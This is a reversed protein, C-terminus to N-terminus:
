EDDTQLAVEYSTETDIVNNVLCDDDNNKKNKNKNKNKNKYFHNDYDSDNNNDDKNNNNNNNDDDNNDDDNNDDNNNLNNDLNDSNDSNDSDIFSYDLKEIRKPKLKKVKMQRVINELYIINEKKDFIISKIEFVIQAKGNNKLLEYMERQDVETKKNKYIKTIYDSSEFNLNLNLIDFSLEKGSYNSTLQRYNFKTKLRKTIKREQIINVITTDLEDFKKKINEKNKLNLIINKETVTLVNLEELKLMLANNKEYCLDIKVIDNNEEYPDYLVLNNCQLDIFNVIM